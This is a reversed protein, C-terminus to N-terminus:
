RGFDDRISAGEGGEKAMIMDVGHRIVVAKIALSISYRSNAHNWGSGELPDSLLIPTAM